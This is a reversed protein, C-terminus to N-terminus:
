MSICIHRGAINHHLEKFDGCTLNYIAYCLIYSANSKSQGTYFFCGSKWLSRMAGKAKRKDGAGTGAWRVRKLKIVRVINPLSYQDNLEENHLERWEGTVKDRRPGFTIRLMRNEFVRLRRKERLTLSWTECM